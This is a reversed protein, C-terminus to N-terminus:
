RRVHVTRQAIARRGDAATGAALVKYSGPKVAHLLMMNVTAASALRKRRATALVRGGKVIGVIVETLPATTSLRVPVQRGRRLKRASLVARKLAAIALRAPASAAGPTTTVTPPGAATQLRRVTISGTYDFEEHTGEMTSRGAGLTNIRWSGARLVFEAERHQGRTTDDVYTVSGDPDIVEFALQEAEPADVAIHLIGSGADTVELDFTDCAPQKCGGYTGSTSFVALEFAGTPEDIHGTWTIQSDSGAITGREPEAAFVAPIAVASVGVVCLVAVRTRGRRAVAADM